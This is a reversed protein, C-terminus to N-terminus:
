KLGPIIESFSTVTAMLLLREQGSVWVYTEIDTIGQKRAEELAGPEVYERLDQKLRPNHRDLFTHDSKAVAGVWRPVGARELRELFDM